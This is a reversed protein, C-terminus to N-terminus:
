KKKGTGVRLDNGKVVTAKPSDKEPNRPAKIVGGKNSAYPNNKMMKRREQHKLSFLAVFGYFFVTRPEIARKYKTQKPRSTSTQTVDAGSAGSLCIRM